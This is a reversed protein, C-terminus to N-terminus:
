FDIYKDTLASFKGNTRSNYKASMRNSYQIYRRIASDSSFYRSPSTISRELDELGDPKYTFSFEFDGRVDFLDSENFLDVLASSGSYGFGCVGVIM